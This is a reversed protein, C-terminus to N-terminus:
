NQDISNMLNQIDSESCLINMKKLGQKIEDKSLLGDNNKDLAKFTEM